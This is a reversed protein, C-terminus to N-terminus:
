WVAAYWRLYQEVHSQWYVENHEGSFLHWEHPIGKETLIQEFWIASKLVEPRDHDGIDLYLRPRNETPIQDIWRKINPVDEWFVPLSHAGIAGFLEWQSFGLHVAWAAGRSLGGIAHYERDPLTRYHDEVWPYLEEVVARGFKDESPQTWVRDGPMVILFPSIEGSAILADATEPVGLRVWQDETYSQGHFLYLVPYRREPQEDYCPPLYIRFLLWRPLYAPTLYGTEIRGSQSSCTLATPTLVPPLPSPTFPVPTSTATPPLTPTPTFTVSPAPVTYADTAISSPSVIITVVALQSAAPRKSSCAALGMGLLLSSVLLAVVKVTKGM